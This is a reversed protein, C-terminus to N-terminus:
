RAMFLREVFTFADEGHFRHGGEFVEHGFRDPHGFAAYIEEARSVAARFGHLPFIPDKDGSEAFLPRPAVLGALDPMECLCLLGPVYNDVCHHISLVSDAFTCFYGSVVCVAVRTDVAATFLSTLGGGSIGMTVVRAPDVLDPRALLYDVARTADWTRWGPMCEGLMLAAMSDPHCSSASAGKATTEPDRRNGFSIQELVFAVWGRRVCALAFDQEYEDPAGLPRQTGDAAIGAVGSMGRGHGPLCVVAPSPATLGDPVLLYGVADLGPRTTFQVRERRYGDLVVTEEIRPNLDPREWAELDGLARVFAARLETQWAVPDSAGHSTDWGLAPRCSAIRRRAYERPDLTTESPLTM